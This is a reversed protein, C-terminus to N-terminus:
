PPYQFTPTARVESREMIIKGDLTLWAHGVLDDISEIGMLFVPNLGRRVLMAYRVLARQFCTTRPVSRNRLLKATSESVADFDAPSKRPLLRAVKDLRRVAHDLASFRLLAEVITRWLLIERTLVCPSIQQVARGRKHKRWTM